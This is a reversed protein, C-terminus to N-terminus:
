HGPKLPRAKTAEEVLKGLRVVKKIKAELKLEKMVNSIASRNHVIRQEPNLSTNEKLEFVIVNM